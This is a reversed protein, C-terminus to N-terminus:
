EKAIYDIVGKESRMDVNLNVHYVSNKTTNQVNKSDHSQVPM